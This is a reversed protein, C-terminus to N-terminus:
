LKKFELVWCWPNADWSKQGNIGYWIESFGVRYGNAKISAIPPEDLIPALLFPAGEVRADEESIEQVREVRIKTIELTIRSLKRPMFISPKWNEVLSAPCMGSKDARYCVWGVGIESIKKAPCDKHVGFTEKVWLRDGPQGYPCVWGSDENAFGFVEEGPYAEGTRNNIKTPHYRECKIESGFQDLQPQPKVIRRTQSKVGALIAQVMPGSFLIPKEVM